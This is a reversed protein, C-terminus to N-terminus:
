FWGRRGCVHRRGVEWGLLWVLSSQSGRSPGPWRYFNAPVSQIGRLACYNRAADSRDQVPDDVVVDCGTRRASLLAVTTQRPGLYGPAAQVTGRGVSAHTYRRRRRCSEGCLQQGCRALDRLSGAQRGRNERRAGTSQAQRGAHAANWPASPKTRSSSGDRGDCVAPGDSRDFSAMTKGRTRPFDYTLGGVTVGYGKLERPPLSRWCSTVRALLM